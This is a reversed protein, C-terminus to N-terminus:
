NVELNLASPDQRDLLNGCQELERFLGNVGHRASALYRGKLIRPCHRMLRASESLRCSACGRPPSPAGDHLLERSSDRLSKKLIAVPPNVGYLQCSWIATSPQGVHKGNRRTKPLRLDRWHPGPAKKDVLPGLRQVEQDAQRHAAEHRLGHLAQLGVEVRELGRLGRDVNAEVVEHTARDLVLPNTLGVLRPYEDARLVLKEQARQVATVGHAAKLPRDVEAEEVVIAPPDDVFDLERTRAQPRCRLEVPHALPRRFLLDVADPSYSAASVSRALFSTNSPSQRLAGASNSANGISQERLSWMNQRDM